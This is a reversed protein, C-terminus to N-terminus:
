GHPKPWVKVKREGCSTCRMAEGIRLLPTRPHLGLEDAFALPEVIKTRGCACHILLLQGMSAIHEPHVDKWADDAPIRHWTM